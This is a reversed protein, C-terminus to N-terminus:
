VELDRAVMKACIPHYSSRHKLFTERALATDYVEPPHM